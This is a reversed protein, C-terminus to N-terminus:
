GGRDQGRYQREQAVPEAAVNGRMRGADLSAVREGARESAAAVVLGLTALAAAAPFAARYGGAHRDRVGRRRDRRRRPPEGDPSGPHSARTTREPTPSWRNRLCSTLSRCHRGSCPRRRSCTSSTARRNAPARSGCFDRPASPSRGRPRARRGRRAAPSDKEGAGVKTDLMDAREFFETDTPGPMLSTVTVGTNKLQQPTRARLVARVVEVLSNSSRVAAASATSRRWTCLRQASITPSCSRV